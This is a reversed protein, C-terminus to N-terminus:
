EVNQIMERIRELAAKMEVVRHAIESDGAKSGITNTERFMEQALFELKKGCHDENKMVELFQAIHSRLRVIEESIDSREAFVGVERIVEAPEVQIEHRALLRNLRETLRSQYAEVVAPAQREVAELRLAVQSLNDELDAAMARGEEARMASLKEVAAVLAQEVQPWVTETDINSAATEDVVGPLNVLQDLRPTENLELREAIDELHRFYGLLVPEHFRFDSPNRQQDIRLWVQVTGRNVYRRILEEVQAELAGYGEPARVGLKFHRNNVTRIEVAVTLGAAERRAEGFGTMSSIM